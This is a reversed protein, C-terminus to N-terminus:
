GIMRNLQAGLGSQREIASKVGQIWTKQASFLTFHSKARTIATYILEKTVVPSFNLPMIFYVDEFESGQSKHVTMVYAPEFDPVRSLSLSYHEGNEQLLVPNFRIQNTQLYAVGAKKGKLAYSIEPLDFSRNFYNEAKALDRKLQRLVQMKLEPFNMIQSLGNAAM